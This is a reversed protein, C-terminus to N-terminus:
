THGRIPAFKPQESYRWSVQFFFGELLKNLQNNDLYLWGRNLESALYLFRSHSKLTSVLYVFNTPSNFFYFRNKHLYNEFHHYLPKSLRKFISKFLMWPNEQGFLNPEELKFFLLLRSSSIEQSASNKKFMPKDLTSRDKRSCMPSSRIVTNISSSDLTSRDYTWKIFETLTVGNWININIIPM